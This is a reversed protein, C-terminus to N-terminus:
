TWFVNYNTLVSMSQECYTGGWEAPCSCEIGIVSPGDLYGDGRVSQFTGREFFENDARDPNKNVFDYFFRDGKLDEGVINYLFDLLAPDVGRKRRGRMM